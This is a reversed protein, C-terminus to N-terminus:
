CIEKVQEGFISGVSIITQCIEEGLIASRLMDATVITRLENGLMKDMPQGFQGDFGREDCGATRPLISEYFREIASHSVLKEVTLDEIREDFGPDQDFM